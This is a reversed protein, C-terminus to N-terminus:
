QLWPAAALNGGPDGDRDRVPVGPEDDRAAAKGGALTDPDHVCRAEDIGPIASLDAHHEDIM